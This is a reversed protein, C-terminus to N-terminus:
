QRKMNKMSLKKLEEYEAWSFEGNVWTSPETELFGDGCLLVCSSCRGYCLMNKLILKPIFIEL